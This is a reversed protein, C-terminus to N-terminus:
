VESLKDSIFKIQRIRIKEKREITISDELSLSEIRQLVEHRNNNNCRIELISNGKEYVKQNGITDIM